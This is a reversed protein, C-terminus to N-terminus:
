AAVTATFGAEAVANVLKSIIDEEGSHTVVVQGTSLDASADVVGHINKLAKEVSSSCGGCTMNSVNLKTRTSDKEDSHHSHSSCCGM